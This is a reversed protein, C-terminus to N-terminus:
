REKYFRVKMARPSKLYDMLEQFQVWLFEKIMEKETPPAEWGKAKLEKEFEGMELDVEKVMKVIKEPRTLPQPKSKAVAEKEKKIQKKM